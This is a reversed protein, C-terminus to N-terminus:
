LLPSGVIHSTDVIKLVEGVTDRGEIRVQELDRWGRLWTLQRKALGRTARLAQRVMERYDIEGALHRWAQRYGVAKMAPLEEGEPYRQRLAGVERLLGVELMREFRLEIRRNLETRDDALLAIQLLAPLPQGSSEASSTLESMKRGTVRYIELARQIRQPDNAHIRAAAEPDLARLEDHLSPWGEREARENIERRVSADASPLAAIGERLAKFYLMTGGVLLPVRGRGHIARMAEDADACFEAVSYPEDPDRIDILHHPIEDRAAADVKATGIDMGRYVQASDVSVIEFPHRRALALAIESKGSATPGMLAVAAVPKSQEGVM